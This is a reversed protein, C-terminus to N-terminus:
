RGGSSGRPVGPAPTPISADRRGAARSRHRYNLTAPPRAPSSVSATGGRPGAPCLPSSAQQAAAPRGDSPPLDSTTSSKRSATTFSSCCCLLLPLLFSTNLALDTGPVSSVMVEYLM